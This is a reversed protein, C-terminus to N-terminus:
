ISYNINLRQQIEVTSASNFTTYIQVTGSVTGRRLIITGSTDVILSCDQPVGNVSVICNIIISNSPRVDVPIASICTLINTTTMTQVSFPIIELYCMRGIRTFRSNGVFSAAGTWNLSIFSEQYANLNENGFNINTTKINVGYIENWRLTTSGIDYTNDTKPLIDGNIGNFLNDFLEGTFINKYLLQSVSM